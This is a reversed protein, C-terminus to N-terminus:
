WFISIKVLPIVINFNFSLPEGMIGQFIELSTRVIGAIKFGHRHFAHAPNM